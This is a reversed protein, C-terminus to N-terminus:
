LVPYIGLIAGLMGLRPFARIADDEVHHPLWDSSLRTSKALNPLRATLLAIWWDM